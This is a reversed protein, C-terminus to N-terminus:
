EVNEADITPHFDLQIYQINFLASLATRKNNGLLM